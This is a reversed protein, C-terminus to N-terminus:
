SPPPTSLFSHSPNFPYHDSVDFCPGRTPEQVQQCTTDDTLLLDGQASGVQKVDKYYTLSHGNLVFYRKKWNSQSM